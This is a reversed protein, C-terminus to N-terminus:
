YGDNCIRRKGKWICFRLLGKYRRLMGHIDVGGSILLSFGLPYFIVGLGNPIVAILLCGSGLAIKVMSKKYYLEIGENRMRLFQSELKSYQKLTVFRKEKVLKKKIKTTLGMTENNRQIMM